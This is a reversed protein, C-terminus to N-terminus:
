GNNNRGKDRRNVANCFGILCDVLYNALLFDPTNSLSELSHISILRTLELRFFELQHYPAPKDEIQECIAGVDGNTLRVQMEDMDRVTKPDRVM